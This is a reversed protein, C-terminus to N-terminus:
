PLIPSFRCFNGDKDFAQRLWQSSYYRDLREGHRLVLLRIPGQTVPLPSLAPYATRNVLDINIRPGKSPSEITTAIAASKSTTSSASSPMSSSPSGRFIKHILKRVGTREKTDNTSTAIPVSLHNSSKGSSTSPIPSMVPPLNMGSARSSTKSHLNFDSTTKNITFNTISSSDSDRRYDSTTLSQTRPSLQLDNDLEDDAALNNRSISTAM